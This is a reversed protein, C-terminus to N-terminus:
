QKFDTEMFNVTALGEGLVLPIIHGPLRNRLDMYGPIEGQMWEDYVCTFRARPVPMDPANSYTFGWPVPANYTDKFASIGQITRNRLTEGGNIWASTISAAGEVFLIRCMLSHASTYEGTVKCTGDACWAEYDFKYENEADVGYLPPKVSTYFCVDLGDRNQACKLTEYENADLVRRIDNEAHKSVLMVTSNPATANYNEYYEIKNPSLTDDFRPAFLCVIFSMLLLISSIKLLVRTDGAMQVWWQLSIAILTMIVCPGLYVASEPSGDVTTHRQFSTLMTVLQVVLTYPVLFQALFVVPLRYVANKNIAHYLATALAGGALFYFAFYLMSTAKTGEYVAALVLLWWLCNMGCLLVDSKAELWGRTRVLLQFLELSAVMATWATLFLFLLVWGMSGYTVMPHCAMLLNAGIILSLVIIVLSTFSLAFGRVLDVSYTKITLLANRRLKKHTAWLGVLPEIILALVNLVQYSTFSLVVLFRGLFDYFVADGTVSESQQQEQAMELQDMSRVAHLAVDGMYQVASPKISAISDRESHYISRPSVFAIDMGAVDYESFVSYDTDSRFLGRKMMSSLLPSAYVHPVGSGALQHLGQPYNSRFLLARGGGGGGELNVLSSVGKFWPHTVFAQAGILGVEENNNFLFILTHKPQHTTYYRLLELMTAVSIGDDTVGPATPVSDFHANILIVQGENSGPESGHVRVMLNRSDVFWYEDKMSWPWGMRIPPKSPDEHLVEMTINHKAAEKAHDDATSGLWARIRGNERSNGPHPTHFQRTYENYAHWGSFGDVDRADVDGLVRPMVDQYYVILAGAGVLFFVLLTLIAGGRRRRLWLEEEHIDHDSDHIDGNFRGLLPTHEDSM